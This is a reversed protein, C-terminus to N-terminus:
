AKPNEWVGRDGTANLYEQVSVIHDYMVRAATDADRNKLASYIQEHSRFIEVYEEQKIIHNVKLEEMVNELFEIIIIFLPNQSAQGIIKHFILDYRGTKWIEANQFDIKKSTEVIRRLEELQEDTILEAAMRAATPEITKRFDCVQNVSLNKFYLFNALMEQPVVSDVEAICPGGAAGKKIEILGIFELARLAERLTQRSVNFQETLINEPPLRDGPNLKGKFIMNRIQFIIESSIKNGRVSEFM